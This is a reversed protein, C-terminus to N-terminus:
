KPYKILLEYKKIVGAAKLHELILVIRKWVSDAKRRMNYRDRSTEVPQEEDPSKCIKLTKLLTDFRIINGTRAPYDNKANESRWKENKGYMADIRHLLYHLLM